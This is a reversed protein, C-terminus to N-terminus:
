HEIKLLKLVTISQKAKSQLSNSLFAPGLTSPAFPHQVALAEEDALL